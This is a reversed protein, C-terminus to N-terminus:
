EADGHEKMLPWPWEFYRIPVRWSDGYREELFDEYRRPVPFSKGYMQIVDTEDLIARDIPRVIMNEMYLYASADIIWYPFLDILVANDPDYVHLNITNKDPFKAQMGAANLSALLECMAVRATEADFANVCCLLDVDDDHEILGGERVAGLLTGYALVPHRGDRQLIQIIKLASSLFKDRQAVLLGREQLGHRTLM